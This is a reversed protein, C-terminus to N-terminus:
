RRSQYTVSITDDPLPAQGVVICGNVTDLYFTGATPNPNDTLTLPQCAGTAQTVYDVAINRGMVAGALSFTRNVGDFAGSPPTEKHLRFRGPTNVNSNILNMAQIGYARPDGKLTADLDDSSIGKDAMRAYLAAREAKVVDRTAM